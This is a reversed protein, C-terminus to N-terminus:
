PLGEAIQAVVRAVFAACARVGDPYTVPPIDPYRGVEWVKRAEGPPSLEWGPVCRQDGSYEVWDAVLDPHNRIYTEYELQSPPTPEGFYGSAKVTEVLSLGTSRYNRPLECLARITEAREMPFLSLERRIKLTALIARHLPRGHWDAAM